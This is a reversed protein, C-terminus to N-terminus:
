QNFKWKPEKCDKDWEEIKTNIRDMMWGSTWMEDDKKPAKSGFRLIKGLHCEGRNKTTYKWQLCDKTKKCTDKCSTASDAANKVQEGIKELDPDDRKDVPKEEDEQRPADQGHSEREAEQKPPAELKADSSINDWEDKKEALNSLILDKFGDRFLYPKEWGNRSTWNTQHQWVSTIDDSSMHHWSVMPACWHRDTWDLSSPTEGQLLPFASYFEVHSETLTTALVMDGCCERGVRPEWESQYREDYAIAFQKMAGYSLMIGPGRQAFKVSGLTIPAGAYYPIRYDLRDVWQLTNTWSMSTDAEIFFYFRAYPRLKYSKYVMPLIKWKDLDKDISDPKLSPDHLMKEYTDFEKRGNRTSNQIDQLANHVTFGEIEGAHDSFIAFNPVCALLTKLHAPLKKEIEAKSTKVIVMVDAAGPVDHCF